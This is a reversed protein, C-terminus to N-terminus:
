INYSFLLLNGKFDDEKLSRPKLIKSYFFIFSQVLFEFILNNHILNSSVEIWKSNYKGHITPPLTGLSLSKFELSTIQFKGIYEAFLPETTSRIIGCIAQLFELM